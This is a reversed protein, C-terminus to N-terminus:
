RMLAKFSFPKYKMGYEDSLEKARKNMADIVPQAEKQAEEYTIAGSNMKHRIAEITDRNKNAQDTLGVELSPKGEKSINIRIM